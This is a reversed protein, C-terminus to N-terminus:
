RRAEQLMRMTREVAADSKAKGADEPTPKAARIGDRSWAALESRVTSIAYSIDKFPRDRKILMEVAQPIMLHAPIQEGSRIIPPADVLSNALAQVRPPETGWDLPHGRGVPPRMGSWREFAVMAADRAQVMAPTIPEIEDPAPECAGASPPSNITETETLTGTLTPPPNAPAFDAADPSPPIKIRGDAPTDPSVPATNGADAPADPSQPLSKRADAPTGAPVPINTDIWCYPASSLVDIALRFIEAPFRTLDALDDVTFASGDPHVLWGRVLRKPDAALRSRAAVQVMLMYATYIEAGRAHRAIARFTRDEFDIPVGVWQLSRLKRSESTEYQEAWGRISIVVQEDM